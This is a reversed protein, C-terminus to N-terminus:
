YRDFTTQVIFLLREWNQSLTHALMAANHDWPNIYHLSRPCINKLFSYISRFLRISASKFNKKNKNGFLKPKITVGAAM